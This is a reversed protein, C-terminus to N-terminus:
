QGFQRLHHDCHLYAWRMWEREIKEVAEAPTQRRWRGIAEPLHRRGRRSMDAGIEAVVDVEDQVSPCARNADFRRDDVAGNGRRLDQPGTGGPGIGDCVIAGGPVQGLAKPVIELQILAVGRGLDEGSRGFRFELNRTKEKWILSM